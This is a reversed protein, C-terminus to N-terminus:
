KETIPEFGYMEAKLLEVPYIVQGNVIRLNYERPRDTMKAILNDIGISTAYHIWDFTIDNNMLANAEFISSPSEIISNALIMNKRDNYQTLSLLTPDVNIQTSLINREKVGTFTMHAALISSKVVPIHLIISKKNFKSPKALYSIINDGRMNVPYATISKKSPNTELFLAETNKKLQEGVASEDYFIAISNGMYPVLAEIQRLYDISGFTFNQPADSMDRKHVTPIFIDIATELASLRRAGTLTLPALVANFKNQRIYSLADILSKESEDPMNIQKLTYHEPHESLLTALAVDYTSQAYKGIISPASILAINIEGSTFSSNVSQSDTNHPFFSTKQISIPAAFCHSGLLLLSFAIWQRFYNM